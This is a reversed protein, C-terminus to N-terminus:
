ALFERGEIRCPTKKNGDAGVRAPTIGFSKCGILSVRTHIKICAALYKGEIYYALM